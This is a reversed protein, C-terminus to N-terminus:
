PVDDQTCYEECRRYLDNQDSFYFVILSLNIGARIIHASRTNIGTSLPFYLSDSSSLQKLLKKVAEFFFFNCADSCTRNSFLIIYLSRNLNKHNCYYSM